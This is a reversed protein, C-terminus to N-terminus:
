VPFRYTDYLKFAEPGSIVTRGEAKAAASIDALIALGDSLTEHFREEETKIVKAIFEQKEVVELYYMGMVEGVTTTLEYLSHVTLDLYKETAYQVAFCAVSSMDVDKMVQCFM